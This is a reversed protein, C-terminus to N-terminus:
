ILDLENIIALRYARKIEFKTKGEELAKRAAQEGIRTIHNFIWQDPDGTRAKAIGYPMLQYYKEYLKLQVDQSMETWGIKSSLFRHVELKQKPTM